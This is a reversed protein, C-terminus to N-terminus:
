AIKGLEEMAKEYHEQDPPTGHWKSTNEMFSVNKGITNEFLIIKPRGEAQKSWDFADLIAKFDHGNVSKTLWGFSSFKSSLDGLNMVEEVRGDIQIHNYDVFATINELKHHAISMAAEWTMGEQCEGDSIGIYLRGEHKQLKMGLASGCAQSLGQGLSGSSNYLQPLYNRSPHGQLRSGLKRFTLLEDRPIVGTLAMAAYQIACVHGNSILFRDQKKPEPDTLNLVKLYLAAFIDALGLAGGPHGSAANYVMTVVDKRLQNACLALEENSIESKPKKLIGSIKQATEPSMTQIAQM